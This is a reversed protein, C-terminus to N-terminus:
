EGKRTNKVPKLPVINNTRTPNVISEMKARLQECQAELANNRNQLLRIEDQLKINEHMIEQMRVDRQYFQSLRAEAEECKKQLRELDASNAEKPCPYLESYMEVYQGLLDNNYFTKRAVGSENAIVSISFPRGKLLEHAEIIKVLRAQIAADVKLFQNLRVKPITYVSANHTSLFENIRTLAENEM